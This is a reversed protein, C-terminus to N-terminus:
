RLHRRQCGHPHAAGGVAAEAQGLQQQHWVLCQVQVDLDCLREQHSQDESHQSLMQCGKISPSAAHHHGVEGVAYTMSSVILGIALLGPLRGACHACAMVQFDRTREASSVLASHRAHMCPPHLGQRPFNPEGPWLNFTERMGRMYCAPAVSGTVAAFPMLAWNGFQRVARNVIDGSSLADAAKAILRLREGENRAITPRHNLYNEQLLKKTHPQVM